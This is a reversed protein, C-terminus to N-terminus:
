RHRIRWCPYSHGPWPFTYCFGQNGRNGRDDQNKLCPHCPKRIVGLLQNLSIYTLGVTITHWLARYKPEPSKRRLLILRLSALNNTKLLLLVMRSSYINVYKSKHLYYAFLILNTFDSKRVATFLLDLVNIIQMEPLLM